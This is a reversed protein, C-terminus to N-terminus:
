KALGITPVALLNLWAVEHVPVIDWHRIVTWNDTDMVDRILDGNEANFVTVTPMYHFEKIAQLRNLITDVTFANGIRGYEYEVTFTNNVPDAIVILVRKVAFTGCQIHINGGTDAAAMVPINRTLEMIEAASPEGSDVTLVLDSSLRNLDAMQQASTQGLLKPISTLIGNEQFLKTSAEDLQEVVRTNKIQQLVLPDYIPKLEVYEPMQALKIISNGWTKVIDGSMTGADEQEYIAYLLEDGYEMIQTLNANTPLPKFVLEGASTEENIHFKHFGTPTYLYMQNKLSAANDIYVDRYQFALKKFYPLTDPVAFASARNIFNNLWYRFKAIETGNMLGAPDIQEAAAFGKPWYDNQQSFTMAYMYLRQCWVIFSYIHGMAAMYIFFDVPDYNKQGSQTVRMTTYLRQAAVRVPSNAYENLGFTPVCKLGVIGPIVTDPYLARKILSGTRKNFPFSAADIMIRTDAAYWAPDNSGYGEQVDDKFERDKKDYNREKGQNRRDRKQRGDRKWNNKNRNAM